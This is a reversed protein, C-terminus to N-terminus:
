FRGRLGAYVSRGLTGYSFATQYIKDTLNEVRGFLAVKRTLAVEGRLDVLAYPALRTFHGGDDFTEGSWRVAAGATVGRVTYSVSGNAAHRPRRALQLGYSASAASRDESASWTYNGEVLLRQGLKLAGIAEIGHAFARSINSYYGFRMTTTGPQFCLAGYPPDFCSVFSVLDRTRREFYTAGITLTEGLLHQEAGAEWGAAREPQLADNGYESYLQYLTPAKFGEGYSARIVTGTPLAWVGGGQFLTKAGYRSHDDNRVGASLTLGSTVTASVLGYVGTLDASGGIPAPVPTSLAAPPSVSRFRQHEHDVGFTLNWGDRIAFAGQYEIRDNRGLADFTVPRARGPTFNDRKISTYGYAVRNKLRGDFLAVNLGGYGVFEDSVQYDATDVLYGDIDTVGHSFYGRLDASIGDAIRVQARGTVQQNTYGDVERGGQAPALASIGETTFAEAGLRFTLPGATGGIAARADATNRSGGELDVTGELPREPLATVINVVGGIAQSGWLVSQPGRLVEIRAADGTLLTGFNYGGGPSAPDNLKVGDIVVVTQDSEAGRIRVSTTTGYGGNRSISVGPTRQLLDAVGIDQARDIAAKDLVTVSAAVQDAPTPARTATVVVDGANAQAAAPAAADPTPATAQDVPRTTQPVDQAAVALTLLLLPTPM